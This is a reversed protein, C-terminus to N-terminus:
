KGNANVKVDYALALLTMPDGEVSEVTIKSDKASGGVINIEFDGLGIKDECVTYLTENTNKSDTYVSVRGTDLARIIIKNINKYMGMTISGDSMQSEYSNTTVLSKYNSVANEFVVEYYTYDLKFVKVTVTEGSIVIEETDFDNDTAKVYSGSSLLYYNKSEDPYDDETEEMVMACDKYIHEEEEEFDENFQCIYTYEEDGLSQNCLALVTQTKENEVVSLSAIEHVGFSLRTWAQVGDVRDICISVVTGDEKLLFLIPNPVQKAILAIIRGETIEKDTASIDIDHTGYYDTYVLRLNNGKQMFVMDTNIDAVFSMDSGYVAYHSAYGELPNISMPVIWEGNNTGVMINNAVGFWKIGDSRGSALQLEMATSSTATKMLAKNYLVLESTSSLDVEEYANGEVFLSESRGLTYRVAKGDSIVPYLTDYEGESLDVDFSVAKSKWMIFETGDPEKMNTFTLELRTIGNKEFWVRNSDRKFYIPNLSDAEIEIGGNVLEGETYKVEDSLGEFPNGEFLSYVKKTDVYQHLTATGSYLHSSSIVEIQAYTQNNIPSTPRPDSDSVVGSAIETKESAKIWKGTYTYRKYKRNCALVWPFNTWAYIYVIQGQHPTPYASAVQQWNDFRLDADIDPMSVVSGETWSSDAVFKWVIRKYKTAAKDNTIEYTYFESEGVVPNPFDAESGNVPKKEIDTFQITGNEIWGLSDYAYSGSSDIDINTPSSEGNHNYNPFYKLYDKYEDETYHSGNTYMYKTEFEAGHYVFKSYTTGKKFSINIIATIGSVNGYESYLRVTYTSFVQNGKLKTDVNDNTDLDTLPKGYENFAAKVFCNDFTYDEYIGAVYKFKLKNGESDVEDSTWEVVRNFLRDGSMNIFVPFGESDYIIKREYYTGIESVDPTTVAVYKGSDIEYYTKGADIVTDQTLEYYHSVIAFLQGDVELGQVTVGDETHNVVSFMLGRPLRYIPNLNSDLHLIPLGNDDYKVSMPFDATDKLTQEDTEVLQFQIFDQISHQENKDLLQSSGFPRSIWYYDPHAETNGLFMREGIIRIISPYNKKGDPNPATNLSCDNFTDWGLSKSITYGTELESNKLRYDMDQNVIIRPQVLSFTSTLTDYDIRLMPHNRHVLYISNYYQSYRIDKFEDDSFGYHPEPDYPLVYLNNENEKGEGTTFQEKIANIFEISVPVPEGSDADEVEVLSLEEHAGEKYWQAFMIATRSLLLVFSNKANLTFPITWKIDYKTLDLLAKLPPRRKLGGQKMAIMNEVRSAGQAYVETDVRGAYLQSTEGYRFNNLISRAM